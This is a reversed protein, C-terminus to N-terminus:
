RFPAKVPVWDLVDLNSYHTKYKRIIEIIEESSTGLEWHDQFIYPLYKVLASDTLEMATIISEELNKNKLIM